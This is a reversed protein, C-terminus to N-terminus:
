AAAIEKEIERQLHKWMHEIGEIYIGQGLSLKLGSETAIKQMISGMENPLHKFVEFRGFIYLGLKGRSMAVTFRKIDKMHGAATTRVLSLIAIDAVQGQFQDITNVVVSNNPSKAKLIDLILSKQANYPTLIVIDATENRLKLFMCFGVVFEAEGLNQYQHQSPEFEGKGMYDPVNIFQVPPPLNYQTTSAERTTSTNNPYRWAFLNAIEDIYEGAANVPLRITEVGIRELRRFLTQEYGTDVSPGLQAEDGLMVIRKGSSQLATFCELDLMQGADIFFFNVIDGVRAKSSTTMGFVTCQCNSLYDSRDWVSKLIEFPACTKLIEFIELIESIEGFSAWVANNHPSTSSTNTTNHSQTYAKYMPLVKNLLFQNASDCNDAYDDSISESLGFALALRKVQFLLETRRKLMYEIRGTRSFEENQAGGLKLISEGGVRQAVLDLVANLTENCKTVILTREPSLKEVIEAVLNLYGSGPSAQILTISEDACVHEFVDDTAVSDPPSGYGVFLDHFWEPVTDQPRAKAKALESLTHKFNSESPGLRLLHKCEFYGVGNELDSLYMEPDMSVRFTRKDGVAGTAGYLLNQQSDLIEVIEFGRALVLGVKECWNSDNVVRDHVNLLFVLDGARLKDWEAKVAPLLNALNVAIEVRVLSPVSSTVLSRKVSAISVSDVRTIMRSSGAHLRLIADEFRDRLQTWSESRFFQFNRCVYDDVSLYSVVPAHACLASGVPAAVFDWDTPLIRMDGWDSEFKVLQDIFLNLENPIKRGELLFVSQVIERRTQENIKQYFAGVKAEDGFLLISSSLGIEGFANRWCVAKVATYIEEYEEDLDSKMEASFDDIPYRLMRLLPAFAPLRNMCWVSVCRDLLIPKLVRRTPLQSLLVVFLECIALTDSDFVNREVRDVWMDVLTPFIQGLEGSDARDFLAELEPHSEFIKVRRFESIWRWSDFKLASMGLRRNVPDDMHLYVNILFSINERTPSQLVQSFIESMRCM